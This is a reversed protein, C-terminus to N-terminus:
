TASIYTQKHLIHSPLKNSSQITHILEHLLLTTHTPSALQQTAAAHVQQQNAYHVDSSKIVMMGWCCVAQDVM